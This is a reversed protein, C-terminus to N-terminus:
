RCGCGDGRANLVGALRSGVEGPCARAVAKLAAALDERLGEDAALRALDPVMPLLLDPQEEAIARIVAPATLSNGGSEENMAWVLRRVVEAVAKRHHRSARAIAQAAFARIKADPRYTMGVLFRVARVDGAVIQDLDDLRGEEVARQVQEKLRM